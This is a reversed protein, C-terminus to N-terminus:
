FKTTYYLALLHGTERDKTQAKSPKLKKKKEALWKCKSWDYLLLNDDECETGYKFCAHNLGKRFSLIKSQDLNM